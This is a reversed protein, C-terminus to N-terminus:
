GELVLATLCKAAEDRGMRVLWHRLPHLFPRSGYPLGKKMVEKLEVKIINRCSDANSDNVQPLCDGSRPMGIASLYGGILPVWLRPGETGPGALAKADLVSQVLGDTLKNICSKRSDKKDSHALAIAAAGGALVLVGFLKSM